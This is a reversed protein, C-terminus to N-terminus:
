EFYGSVDVVVHATGTAQGLYAILSGDPGLSVRANNARTQGVKFNITSTNPLASGGPYLTVFGTAGPGVVTVNLSIAGATPSTKCRGGFVFTRASTPGGSIAPGGYPGNAGQTNILRCPTVTYYSSANASALAAPAAVSAGLLALSVILPLGAARPLTRSPVHTIPCRSRLNKM